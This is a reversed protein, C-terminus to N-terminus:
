ADNYPAGNGVRAVTELRHVPTDQERLRLHRIGIGTRVLFAGTHDTIDDAFVMGVPVTRYIVRQHAHRLIKGHAIRQFVTLSIETGNFAVAGAAM